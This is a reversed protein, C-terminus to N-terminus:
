LGRPPPEGEPGLVEAYGNFTTVWIDRGDTSVTVAGERDTRLLRCGLRRYRELVDPHPHGFRNRFGASVIALRPRTATLFPASSSTRSGHHPVKLVDGRTPVLRSETTKEIDGALIITVEGLRLALVVSDDNRTTWPPRPPREPALVEVSAGDWDARFGRTVTLRTAPSHGLVSSLGAYLPDHRPALGEWVTGVDFSRLVARAGGVHDPHAHTLVLGELRRTRLSWLYPAVVAEGADFRGDGGGGADVLWAHGRPTLVVIADGQGVDLVTVHLRGDADPPTPVLILALGCILGACGLRRSGPRLLLLLGGLYVAGALPSPGPVRVDLWPAIRVVDASRLLTHAMAWAVDGAWLALTASLPALAVVLAGGLLVAGSLPVAALNLVLAAPALRHFHIALLPLLAIQAAVSAALALDLRLPLSPLRSALPAVLLLIGLTAGFSLQFSVDAVCSPRDVILGLAALGLLNPLDADLDLGRGLLMVTATAVARLIPVDGGVLLAYFALAGSVLLATLAQPTELRRLGWLLVGAVLAVQAGSLALVHYTGAIRFSEETDRDLGSRDGLVMARILAEEPGPPVHAAIQARAWARLRAAWAAITGGTSLREVLVGSKCYGVAHVGERRARAASDPSGPNGFSRPLRLVAWLGVSDGALLGPGLGTGGVLIRARGTLHLRTGSPEVVAADVLLSWRDEVRWPDRALRGELRVPDEASAAGLVWERLGARDYGRGEVAAAGAGIAFAAGGLAIWAWLAGRVRLVLLLLLLGLALLGLLTGTGLGQGVCAGLGLFVALGLLPRTM